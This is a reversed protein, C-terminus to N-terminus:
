DTKIPMLKLTIWRIPPVLLLAGIGDIFYHWGLAVTSFWSLIFLIIATVFLPKPLYKWHLAACACSFVHYSPMAAIGSVIFFNSPFDPYLTVTVMLHKALVGTPLNSLKTFADPHTFIPGYSPFCFAFFLCAYLGLFLMCSLRIGGRLGSYFVTIGASVALFPFLSHYCTETAILFWGDIKQILWLSPINGGFLFKDFVEFISDYFTRNLIPIAPKLAFYSIGSMYYLTSLACVSIETALIKSFLNKTAFRNIFLLSFLCFIFIIFFLNITHLDLTYFPLNRPVLIIASTPFTLLILSSLLFIERWPIICWPNETNFLDSIYSNWKKILLLM